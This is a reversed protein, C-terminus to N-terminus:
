VKSKLISNSASYLYLGNMSNNINRNIFLNYRNKLKNSRFISRKINKAHNNLLGNDTMKHKIMESNPNKSNIFGSNAKLIKKNYIVSGNEMMDKYKLKYDSFNFIDKQNKPFIFSLKENKINRNSNTLHLEQMYSNSYFTKKDKILPNKEEKTIEYLNIKSNKRSLIPSIAKTDLYFENTNNSSINNNKLKLSSLDNINYTTAKLIPKIIFNKNLFNTLNKKIKRESLRNLNKNRSQNETKILKNKENLKYNFLKTKYSKVENARKNEIFDTLDIIINKGMEMKKKQKEKKTIVRKIIPSQSKLYRSKIINCYGLIHKKLELNNENDKNLKETSNINKLHIYKKSHEENLKDKKGKDKSTNVSNYFLKKSKLFIDNNSINNNNLQKPKKLLGNNSKNFSNQIVWSFYLDNKEGIYELIDKLLGRLYNYNPKEDFNLNKCYKYFESMQYPLEKFMEDAPMYQKMKYITLIENIESTEKIKDWPLAGKMLYLLLYCFSEMDDRRTPEIGRLTNASAFRSTGSWKKNICYKVHKGTKTSRYQKALGFDIIYIIQNDKLGILFNDAKIDRHIICKNHIYELRDLIEIGAMCSDKLSLKKNKRLLLKDLSKGLLEQILINYRFNHGYSIVKPIGFGKLMHLIYTERELITDIQNKLELKVAVYEEKYINKGLFVLGFAGKGIKKIIKFKKLLIKNTLEDM